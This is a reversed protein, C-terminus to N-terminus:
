ERLTNSDLGMQYTMNYRGGKKIQKIAPATENRISVILKALPARSVSRCVMPIQIKIGSDAALAKM